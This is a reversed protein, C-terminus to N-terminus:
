FCHAVNIDMKPYMILAFIASNWNITTTGVAHGYNEPNYNFGRYMESERWWKKMGDGWIREFWVWLGGGGKM